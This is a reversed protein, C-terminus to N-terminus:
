ASLKALEAKADREVLLPVFERVPRGEFRAYKDYVVGVVRDAPVETYVDSLRYALQDILERESLKVKDMLM